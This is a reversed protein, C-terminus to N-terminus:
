DGCHTGTRVVKNPCTMLLKDLSDGEDNININKIFHCTIPNSRKYNQIEECLAHCLNNRGMESLTKNPIQNFKPVFGWCLDRRRGLKRM